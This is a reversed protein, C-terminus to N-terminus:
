TRLISVAWSTVDVVAISGSSRLHSSDSAACWVTSFWNHGAATSAHNPKFRMARQALRLCGPGTGPLGGACALGRADGGGGLLGEDAPQRCIFIRWTGAPEASPARREGVLGRVDKQVPVQEIRCQRWHGAPPRALSGRTAAGHHAAQVAIHYWYGSLVPSADASAAVPALDLSVAAHRCQQHWAPCELIDCELV